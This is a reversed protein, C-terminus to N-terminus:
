ATDCFRLPFVLPKLLPASFLGGFLPRGIKPCLSFGCVVFRIVRMGNCFKLPNKVGLSDNFVVFIKSSAFTIIIKQSKVSENAAKEISVSLRRNFRDFVVIM